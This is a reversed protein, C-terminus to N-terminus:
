TILQPTHWSASTHPALCPYFFSILV